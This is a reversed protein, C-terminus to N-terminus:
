GGGPPLPPPGMQRELDRVVVNRQDRTAPDDASGIAVDRCVKRGNIRSGTTQERYCVRKTKPAEPATVTVQENGAPPQVAAPATPAPPPAAPDAPQAHAAASGLLLAFACAAIANSVRM